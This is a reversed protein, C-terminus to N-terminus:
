VAPVFVSLLRKKETKLSEGYHSDGFLSLFFFCKLSMHIHPLDNLPHLM